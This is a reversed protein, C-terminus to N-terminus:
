IYGKQIAEAETVQKAHLWKPPHNLIKQIAEEGKCHLPFFDVVCLLEGKLFLNKFFRELSESAEAESEFTGVRHMWHKEDDHDFIEPGRYHRTRIQLHWRNTEGPEQFLMANIDAGKGFKSFDNPLSVFWMGIYYTEPKIKMM